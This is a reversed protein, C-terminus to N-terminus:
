GGKFFYCKSSFASSFKDVATCIWHLINLRNLM